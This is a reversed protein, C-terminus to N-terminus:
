SLPVPLHFLIQMSRDDSHMFYGWAMYKEGAECVSVGGDDNARRIKVDDGVKAVGASEDGAKVDEASLPARLVASDAALASDM